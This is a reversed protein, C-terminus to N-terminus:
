RPVDATVRARGLARTVRADRSRRQRAMPAPQRPETVPDRLPDETLHEYVRRYSALSEDLTFLRLVRARAAQGMRHRLEDDRLLTVCARAVALHDGPSVVIGADAVAESVGGVNTCVMPRGCAMAEIVTVPFGESVSTLAVV